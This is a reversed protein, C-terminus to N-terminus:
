AKSWPPKIRLLNQWAGALGGGGKSPLVIDPDEERKKSNLIDIAKEGDTKADWKKGYFFDDYSSFLKQGSTSNFIIKQEPIDVESITVLETAPRTPDGTSIRFREGVLKSLIGNLERTLDESLKKPNYGRSSEMYERLKLSRDDSLIPPNYFFYTRKFDKMMKKREPDELEPRRRRTEEMARQLEEDSIMGGSDPIIGRAGESQLRHYRRADSPNPTINTLDLASWEDYPIPNTLDDQDGEKDEDIVSVEDLGEAEEPEEIVEVEDDENAADSAIKVKRRMRKLELLLIHSNM